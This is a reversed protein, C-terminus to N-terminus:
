YVIYHRSLLGGMSAPMHANLKGAATEAVVQVKFLDFDYFLVFFM